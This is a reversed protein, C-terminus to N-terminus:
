EERLAVMPDVRMARLTPLLSAFIVVAAVLACVIIYTLFDAPNIEQLLGALSQSLLLAAILGCAIGLALLGLAHGFILRLISAKSAGLATRVGIERTRRAVSYSLTGYIGLVTLVLALFAYVGMLSASFRSQVEEEDLRQELTRIDFIPIAPHISSVLERLPGTVAGPETESRLLLAFNPIFQPIQSINLVVTPVTRNGLRYTLSSAPFIGVVQTWPAQPSSRFRKGLASEQPWMLEAFTDSVMAVRPAGPDDSGRFTRGQLVPIGLLEFAGPSAFHLDSQRRGEQPDGGEPYSEFITGNIGPIGPSWLASGSVGPLGTAETLLRRHVNASMEAERLEDGRLEMRLTLLNDSDYGVGRDALRQFNQWLLGAGVLLLVATAIELVMLPRLSKGFASGGDGRGGSPRLHDMLDASSLRLAPPLSVVLGTILTAACIVLLVLPDLDLSVLPPLSLAAAMLRHGWLALLLGALGGFATLVASELLVQRLISSRGAGMASRVAMEQYRSRARVVLLSGVNICGLLLVFLSCVFLVSFSRDLDGLVFYELPHVLVGYDSMETYQGRIRAGIADMEERAQSLDVGPSLRALVGGMAKSERSELLNPGFTDVATTLPIWLDVPRHPSHDEHDLPIDQFNEAMVGVITYTGGDLNLAQGITNNASHFFTQWIRHSIVAVPASTRVEEASFVRGQAAEVGLLQFYRNETYNVRLREASQGTLITRYQWHMFPAMDAFVEAQERWDMANRYAPSYAVGGGPIYAERLIMLEDPAQYPLPRLAVANVASFMLANGGICLGLVSIVILSFSPRKLLSRLTFRLDHFLM